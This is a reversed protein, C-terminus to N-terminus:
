AVQMAQWHPREFRLFRTAAGRLEKMSEDEDEIRNGDKVLREGVRELFERVYDALADPGDRGEQMALIFLQAMHPVVIGGGTVPSALHQVEMSGRARQLIHANLAACREVGRATPIRAPSALGSGALMTLVDIIDAPRRDRLRPHTLLEDVRKLRYDDDSLVEIVPDYRHAPLEVEGRGCPIRQPIDVSPRALVFAQALWAERQEPESMRRAGKVFIDTRFRRNVMFDRVTERTIPHDIRAVLKRGEEDLHLGDMADLLRTSGAFTLKAEDLSRAMDAFHKLHWNANLFEHALYYRQQKMMGELQHRAFPNDRFYASGARMVDGAFGLAGEVMEAAGASKGAVSDKYLLMLERVPLIPAWGPLCNYSIYAIGGPRLKRRIIDKIVGRSAESVWSWIGHLAIIDFDPLDDRRAFEEFSEDFLRIESGSATAMKRASATQAPNFDTGWYSGASAAAHINISVGQGFGLELYTPAEGLHPDVGHCLCALRLTAPNLEPYYGHTYTLETFYGDSWAM